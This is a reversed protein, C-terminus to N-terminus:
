LPLSLKGSNGEKLPTWSNSSAFVSSTHLCMHATPLHASLWLSLACTGPNFTQWVGSMLSLAANESSNRDPHHSYVQVLPILFLPLFNCESVVFLVSSCLTYNWSSIVTIQERPFPSIHTFVIRERLARSDIMKSLAGPFDSFESSVIHAICSAAFASPLSLWIM